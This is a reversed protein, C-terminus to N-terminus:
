KFLEKIKEAPVIWKTDINELYNQLAAKEGKLRRTKANVLSRYDGIIVLLRKNRSLAVNIRNPVEMFGLDLGVGSKVLDLIIIDRELGQFRDVVSVTFKNEANKWKFISAFETRGILKDTKRKLLRYQEKYCAIIGISYDKVREYKSLCNLIEVTIKASEENYSSGNENKRNKNNSGIDIFFLSSTIAL